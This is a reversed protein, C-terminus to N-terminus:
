SVIGEEEEEEEKKKKKKKRNKRRKKWSFFLFFFGEFLFGLSLPSEKQSRKREVSFSIVDKVCVCVCVSLLLMRFVICVRWNNNNHECLSVVCFSSRKKTRPTGITQIKSVEKLAM